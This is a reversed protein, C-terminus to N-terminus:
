ETKADKVEQKELKEVVIDYFTDVLKKNWNDMIMDYEEDSVEEQIPIVEESDRPCIIGVTIKKM